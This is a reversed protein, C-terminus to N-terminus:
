YHHQTLHPHINLVCLLCNTTSDLLLIAWTFPPTLFFYQLGLKLFLCSKLTSTHSWWQPIILSFSVLYIFLIPFFEHLVVLPSSSTVPLNSTFIVLIIVLYLFVRSIHCTLSSTLCSLQFLAHFKLQTM